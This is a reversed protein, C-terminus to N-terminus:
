EIWAVCSKSSCSAWVHGNCTAVSYTLKGEKCIPCPLSASGGNGKRFGRTKADEKVAITAILFNEIGRKREEPIIM